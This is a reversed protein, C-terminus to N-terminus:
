LGKGGGVVLFLDLAVSCVSTIKGGDEIIIKKLGELILSLWALITFLM